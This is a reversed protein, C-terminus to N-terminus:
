RKTITKSDPSRGARNEWTHWRNPKIAIMPREHIAMHRYQLYKKRLLAVAKHHKKGRSLVKGRGTVLVYALRRWDEEYHDIVLSVQPNQHINRLRKLKQASVRKPKEDIPSFFEKGDFAFCIPIVLPQGQADATALHAVQASRVLRSASPSLRQSIPM